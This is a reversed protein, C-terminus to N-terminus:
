SHCRNSMKLVHNFLSLITMSLIRKLKGGDLSELVM